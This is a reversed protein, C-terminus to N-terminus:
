DCNGKAIPQLFFFIHFNHLAFYIAMFQVWKNRHITYLSPNFLITGTSRIIGTYFRLLRHHHDILHHEVKKKKKKNWSRGEKVRIKVQRVSSTNLSNLFMHEEGGYHGWPEKIVGWNNSTLLCLATPLIFFNSDVFSSKFIYKVFTLKFIYWYIESWMEVHFYYFYNM